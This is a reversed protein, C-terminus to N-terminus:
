GHKRDRREYTQLFALRVRAALLRHLDRVTQFYQLALKHKQFRLNQSKIILKLLKKRPM